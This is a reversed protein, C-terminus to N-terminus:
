MSVFNRFCWNRFRPAERKQSRSRKFHSPKLISIPKEAAAEVMCRSISMGGGEEENGSRSKDEDQKTQLFAPADPDLRGILTAVRLGVAAEAHAM